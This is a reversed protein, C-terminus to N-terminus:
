KPPLLLKAIPCCPRRDWWNKYFHLSLTAENESETEEEARGLAGLDEHSAVQLGGAVLRRILRVRNRDALDLLRLLPVLHIALLHASDGLDLLLFPLLLLRLAPLHLLVGCRDLGCGSVGRLFLILLSLLLQLVDRSSLLGGRGLLGQLVRVRQVQLLHGRLLLEVGNM